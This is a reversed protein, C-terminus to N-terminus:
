LTAHTLRAQHPFPSALPSPPSAPLVTCSASQTPIRSKWEVTVQAETETGAFHPWLRFRPTPRRDFSPGHSLNNNPKPSPTTPHQAWLVMSLPPLPTTVSVFCADKGGEPNGACVMDGWINMRFDSKEFLHNCMSNNIIAM